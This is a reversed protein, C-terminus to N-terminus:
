DSGPELKKICRVLLGRNKFTYDRNAATGDYLVQIAYATEYSEESSTWYTTYDSTFVFSGHTGRSGGPWPAEILYVKDSPVHWGRPCLKDIEVAYWNYLAGVDNYRSKDNYLWCYAPQTTTEWRQGDEILSIETGDNYRTTKLNEAMWIISDKIITPYTNGDIDKVTQAELGTSLFCVLVLVHIVANKM